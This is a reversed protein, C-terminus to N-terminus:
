VCVLHAQSAESFTAFAESSPTVWSGCAELPLATHYDLTLAASRLSSRISAVEGADMCVVIRGSAM